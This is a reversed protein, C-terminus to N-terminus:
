VHKRAVFFVFSTAQPKSEIITAVADQLDALTRPTGLAFDEDRTDFNITGALIYRDRDADACVLCADDADPFHKCNSAM